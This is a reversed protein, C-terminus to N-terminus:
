AISPVALRRRWYGFPTSRFGRCWMWHNFTNQQARLMDQHCLRDRETVKWGRPYRFSFSGDLSVYRARTLPIACAAPSVLALVVVVSV